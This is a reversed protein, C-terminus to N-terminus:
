SRARAPGTPGYRWTWSTRPAGPSFTRTGPARGGRKGSATSSM